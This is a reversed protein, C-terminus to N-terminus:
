EKSERKDAVLSLWTFNTGEVKQHTFSHPYDFREFLTYQESADISDVKKTFGLELLETELLTGGPKIVSSLITTVKKPEDYYVLVYRLSGDKFAHCYGATNRDKMDQEVSNKLNDDVLYGKKMIFDPLTNYDTTLIIEHQLKLYKNKFHLQGYVLSVPLFLMIFLVAKIRSSTPKNMYCVYTNIFQYLLNVESWIM